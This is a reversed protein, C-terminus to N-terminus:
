SDRPSPSTYLLCVTNQGGGLDGFAAIVAVVVAGGLLAAIFPILFSRKM